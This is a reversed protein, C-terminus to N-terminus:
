SFNISSCASCLLLSELIAGAIIDSLYHVGMACSSFSGAAGLGLSQPLGPRPLLRPSSQLSFARAAHGSPFSHPDTNRYIGGWEGEPRKRKFLVQGGAGRSGFRLSRLVGRNGLAAM